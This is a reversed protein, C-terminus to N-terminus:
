VVLRNSHRTFCPSPPKNCGPAWKTEIYVNTLGLFECSRVSALALQTFNLESPSPAIGMADRMVAVRDANSEAAMIQGEDRDASATLERLGNEGDPLTM